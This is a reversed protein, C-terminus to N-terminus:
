YKFQTIISNLTKVSASVSDSSKATSETSVVLTNTRQDVEVVSQALENSVASQQEVACAIQHNMDDIDKMANDITNLVEGAESILVVCENTSNQSINAINVADEVGAHLQEIMRDIEETSQQTKSALNRVEDAVVAFGRGQEGARAAEIAANLALLNTQEAIGRIVNLVDSIEQSDKQLKQLSEVSRGVDENVSGIPAISQNLIDTGTLSEAKAESVKESATHTNLSVENFSASMETIASSLQEMQIKQEDIGRYAESATSDLKDASLDLDNSVSALKGVSTQIKTIFVNFWKAVRGIEDDNKQDLRLTLNGEGEAIDQFALALRDLPNSITKRFLIAVITLMTLLLILLVIFITNSLQQGNELISDIPINIELIGRVDGLKWDTKPSDARSNHCGLCANNVMKDSIAVRVSPVGNYSETKYFRQDPNASITDWAQQGFDDLNRNSRNPFPFGSYLKMLTGEKELVASLDHIMSAPLPISNQESQHNFSAKMSGNALVKKVVNKTYYSRVTKFQKATREADLIALETANKEIITPLWFALGLMGLIFVISVPAFLKLFLSQKM